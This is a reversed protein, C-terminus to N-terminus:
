SNRPLSSAVRRRRSRRLWLVGFGVGAVATLTRAILAGSVSTPEDANSEPEAVANLPSELGDVVPPIAPVVSSPSEVVPILDVGEIAPTEDATLGIVDARVMPGNPVAVVEFSRSAAELVRVDGGVHLELTGDRAQEVVYSTPGLPYTVFLDSLQEILNGDLDFRSSGGRAGDTVVYTDGVRIISDFCGTCPRNTPPPEVFDFEAVLDGNKSYSVARSASTSQSARTVTILESVPDFQLQLGVEEPGLRTFERTVGNLVNTAQLAGGKRIGEVWLVEDGALQTLGGIGPAPVTMAEGDNVLLLQGALSSGFDGSSMAFRSADASACTLRSAGRWDFNPLPHADIDFSQTVSMTTLDISVVFPTLGNQEYQLAVASTSGPCIDVSQPAFLGPTFVYGVPNGAADYAALSADKWQGAVIMAVPGTSTPAPLDRDLGRIQAASIIGGCSSVGWRKREGDWSPVFGIESGSPVTTGCAAEDVAAWVSMQGQVDGKIVESVDVISEVFGPDSAGIRSVRGVFAIQGEGIM